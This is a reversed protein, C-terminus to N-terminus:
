THDVEGDDVYQRLDISRELCDLLTDLSADERREEIVSCAHAATMRDRGFVRGAAAYNLGLRVHCLYTAVQRAFAVPAAGRAPAHLASRGVGFASEVLMEVFRSMAAESRGVGSRYDKREFGAALAM